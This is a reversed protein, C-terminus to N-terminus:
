AKTAQSDALVRASRRVAAPVLARMGLGRLGAHADPVVLYQLDHVTTVGCVAARMPATSALSHVVDAGIRAAIRPVHQQEGRVWEVRNRARVPVLEMPVVDHWPGDADAAERNVLATLRM